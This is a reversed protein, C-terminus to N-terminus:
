KKQTKLKQRIETCIEPEQKISEIILDVTKSSYSFTPTKNITNTFCFNPNGKIDFYKNFDKFNGSTFNLCLGARRLGKNVVELLRKVNYPHTNNPNQIEKIITCNGDVEEDDKALRFKPVIETHKKTLKLEQQIVISFRDSNTIRTLEAISSQTKVLKNYINQSYRSQFDKDLLPSAAVALNIFHVPIQTSIDISHFELLKDAFNYSCAQFLPVYLFEYEQTIFHTSTNRLEIIKELNKRLPDQDNTFVIKICNELSITRTDSEKYYIENEGSDKIIKAKLMLEWANCVFFAFGEVRYKLTPKNYLEIAMIFAEQSKNLLQSCIKEEMETM